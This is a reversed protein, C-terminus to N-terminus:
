GIKEGLEREVIERLQARARFIRSKVTGAALGTIQEIEEYSLEEVDRLILCERFTPEIQLIANQVIREVQKGALQQQKTPGSRGLALLGAPKRRPTGGATPPWSATAAGAPAGRTIGSGLRCAPPLPGPASRRPEM